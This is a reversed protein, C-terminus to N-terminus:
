NGSWPDFGPGRCQSHPTKGVPGRPSDWSLNSQAFTWWHCILTQLPPAKENVALSPLKSNGPWPPLRGEEQLATWSTIKHIGLELESNPNTLANECHYTHTVSPFSYHPSVCPLLNQHFAPPCYYSFATPLSRDEGLPKFPQSQYSLLHKRPFTIIAM